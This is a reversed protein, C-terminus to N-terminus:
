DPAEVFRRAVMHAKSHSASAPGTCFAVYGRGSSPDQMPIKGVHGCEPCVPLWVEAPAKV